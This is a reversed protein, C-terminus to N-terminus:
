LGVKEGSRMEEKSIAYQVEDILIYYKGEDTIRSRIYQSLMAPDRYKVHLDDDLALAIIHEGDVGSGILYDYFLRFLLWSKGCRRIGTIVKVLGNNKKRILRELYIDRKIINEM